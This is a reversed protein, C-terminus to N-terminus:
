DAGVPFHTRPGGGGCLESCPTHPQAGCGDCAREQWFLCQRCYETGRALRECGLHNGRCVVMTAQLPFSPKRLIYAVIIAITIILLGGM